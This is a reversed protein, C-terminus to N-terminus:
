YYCSEVVFMLVKDDGRNQKILRWVTHREREREELKIEITKIEQDLHPLLVKELM